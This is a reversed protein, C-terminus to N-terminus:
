FRLGLGSLIKILYIVAPVITSALLRRIIGANFPWTPSEQVLRHYTAWSTVTSSLSQMENTQVQVTQDEMEQTIAMLHKRALALKHKKAEVMANHASWMSLFFILITVCILIAYTTISQWRLLEEWTGFVLSLSIGGIFFLSIGLSWLAIPTLLEIDFIGLKLDRRSLRNIRVAGTLTDYILWALLGNSVVNTIVMHVSLWLEGHGWGLNWPQGLVFAVGIGVLVSTWEWRRKPTTIETALQNFTDDDLPLLLRFAQIARERLRWMFIPIVLMYIILVLGVVNSQWFGWNLLKTPEGDLFVALIGLLLIVVAVMATAWLWPLRSKKMLMQLLNYKHVEETM